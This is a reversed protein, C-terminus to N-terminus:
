KMNEPHIGFDVLTQLTAEVKAQAIESLLPFVEVFNEILEYLNMEKLKAEM